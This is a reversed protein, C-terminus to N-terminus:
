LFFINIIISLLLMYSSRFNIAAPSKACRLARSRLNYSINLPVSSVHSRCSEHKHSRSIFVNWTIFLIRFAHSIALFICWFYVAATGRPSTNLSAYDFRDRSRTEEPSSVLRTVSDNFIRLSWYRISLHPRITVTRNLFLMRPRSLNSSLVKFFSKACMPSRLSDSYSESLKKAFIWM